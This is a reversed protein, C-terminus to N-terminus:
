LRCRITTVHERGVFENQNIEPFAGYYDQRSREKIRKLTYDARKSWRLAEEQKLRKTKEKEEKSTLTLVISIDDIRKKQESHFADIKEKEKELSSLQGSIADAVINYSKITILNNIMVGYTAGESIGSVIQSVIDNGVFGKNVKDIGEAINEITSIHDKVIAEKETQAKISAIDEKSIGNALLDKEKKELEEKYYQERTKGNAILFALETAHKDEDAADIYKLNLIAKYEVKYNALALTKELIEKEKKHKGIEKLNFNNLIYYWEQIKYNLEENTMDLKSLLENLVIEAESQIRDRYEFVDNDPLKRSNKEMNWIDEFSDFDEAYNVGSNDERMNLSVFPKDFADDSLIIGTGGTSGVSAIQGNHSILSVSGESMHISITNRISDFDFSETTLYTPDDPHYNSDLGMRRQADDESWYQIENAPNNSYLPYGKNIGLVDLSNSAGSSIGGPGTCPTATAKQNIIGYFFNMSWTNYAIASLRDIECERKSNFTRSQFTGGGTVGTGSATITLTYSWQAWAIQSVIFIDLLLFLRRM